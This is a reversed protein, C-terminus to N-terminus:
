NKKQKKSSLKGIGYYIGAGAGLGVGVLVVPIATATGGIALGAGGVISKTIGGVGLGTVAGVGTTKGVTKLAKKIKLKM